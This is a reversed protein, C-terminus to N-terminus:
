QLDFRLAGSRGDKLTVSAVAKAGKALTADGALTLRNDGAPVLAHETKRAGALVVLKASAGATPVPAGHDTLYLTTGQPGAVLEGQFSGAEAVVGGHQPKGHDAHALTAAPVVALVAAAALAAFATRVTPRSPRFPSM